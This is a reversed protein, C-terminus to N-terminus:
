GLEKWLKKSYELNKHLFETVDQMNNEVIFIRIPYFVGKRQQIFFLKLMKVTANDEVDEIDFRFVYNMDIDITDIGWDNAFEQWSNFEQSINKFYNEGNCYYSHNTAEFKLVKM